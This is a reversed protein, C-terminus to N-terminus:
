IRMSRRWSCVTATFYLSIPYKHEKPFGSIALLIAGTHRDLAVLHADLTAMFLRDGHIALGRNSANCCLRLGRPLQRDYRWIDQGTRGDIAWVTNSLGSFYLTGDYALPTAELPREEGPKFTWEPRLQAVNAPTIQTLPSHRRGTYDGSYTLWREAHALGDDLANQFQCGLLPATAALILAISTLRSEPRTIMRM